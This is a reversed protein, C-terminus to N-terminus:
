VQFRKMEILVDKLEIIHDFGEYFSNNLRKRYKEQKQSRM